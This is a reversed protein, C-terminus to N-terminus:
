NLMFKFNDIKIYPKFDKYNLARIAKKLNEKSINKLDIGFDYCIPITWENKNQSLNLNDFDISNIFDCVKQSNTKQLNFTIILKNYSPVCNTIGKINKIDYNFILERGKFSNFSFFFIDSDEILSSIKHALNSCFQCDGDYLVYRM